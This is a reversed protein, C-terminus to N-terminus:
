EKAFLSEMSKGIKATFGDMQRSWAVPVMDNVRDWAKEGGSWTSSVFDSMEGLVSKKDEDENPEPVRLIAHAACVASAAAAGGIIVDGVSTFALVVVFSFMALGLTQMKLNFTRGFLTVDSARVILVYQWLLGLMGCVVLSWPRMLVLVGVVVFLLLVYNDGFDQVNRRLRFAADTYGDPLSIKRVNIVKIWNSSSRTHLSQLFTFLRSFFAVVISLPTTNKADVDVDPSAM